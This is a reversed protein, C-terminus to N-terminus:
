AGKLRGQAGIAEGNREPEAGETSRGRRSKQDTTRSKQKAPGSGVGLGPSKRNRVVVPHQTICGSCLPYTVGVKATVIIVNETKKQKISAM